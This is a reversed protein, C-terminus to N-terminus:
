WPCEDTLILAIEDPVVFETAGANSQRHYEDRLLQLVLMVYEKHEGTLSANRQTEADAYNYIADQCETKLSM